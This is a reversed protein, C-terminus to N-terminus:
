ETKDELEDAFRKPCDVPSKGLKKIPHPLDDCKWKAKYEIHEREWKSCDLAEIFEQIGFGILAGECFDEDVQGGVFVYALRHPIM